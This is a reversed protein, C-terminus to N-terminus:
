FSVDGFTAMLDEVRKPPNGDVETFVPGDVPFPHLLPERETPHIVNKTTTTQRNVVITSPENRHYTPYGQNPITEHNHTYSNPTPSRYQKNTSNVIETKYITTPQSPYLTIGGPPIQQGSTSTSKNSSEYKYMSTSIASQPTEQIALPPYSQASHHIPTSTNPYVGGSRERRETKYFIATNKENEPHSRVNDKDPIEYTYTRVTTTVKTGPKPLFEHPLSVERMVSSNNNEVHVVEKSPVIPNNISRIDTPSLTRENSEHSIITRPKGYLGDDNYSINRKASSSSEITRTEYAPSKHRGLHSDPSEFVLERSVPARNTGNSNESYTAISRIVKSGPERHFYFKVIM